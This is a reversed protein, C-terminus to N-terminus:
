EEEMEALNVDPYDREIEPPDAGAHVWCMPTDTEATELTAPAGCKVCPWFPRHSM